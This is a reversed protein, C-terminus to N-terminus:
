LDYIRREKKLNISGSVGPTKVICNCAVAWLCNNCITFTLSIMKESKTTLFSITLFRLLDCARIALKEHSINLRDPTTRKTLEYNKYYSYTFESMKCNLMDTKSLLDSDITFFRFEENANQISEFSYEGFSFPLNAKQPKQNLNIYFGVGFNFKKSRTKIRRAQFFGSVSNSAERCTKYNVNIGKDEKESQKLKQESLTSINPIRNDGSEQSCVLAKFNDENSIGKHNRSKSRADNIGDIFVHDQQVAKPLSVLFLFFTNTLRGYDFHIGGYKM